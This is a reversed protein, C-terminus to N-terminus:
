FDLDINLSVIFNDESKEILKERMKLLEKNKNQAYLDRMQDTIFLEKYQGRYEDSLLFELSSHKINQYNLVVDDVMFPKYVVNARSEKENKILKTSVFGLCTEPIIVEKSQSLQYLVNACFRVSGFNSPKYQPAQFGINKNEIYILEHESGFLYNRFQQFAKARKSPSYVTFYNSYTTFWFWNKLEELQPETPSDIINFFETIFILQWNTPLLKSDIVYLNEFLFAVAKELSMLTKRAVKIFYNKDSNILKVVDVDFSLKGFSSQICNFILERNIEQFNYLKLKEYLSDIENKLSFKNTQTLANVIWDKSIQIGKKNVRWFIDVAEDVTADIVDVSSIEYESIIKSLEDARDLYLDIKNKDNIKELKERAFKRFDSTNILVYLPVQYDSPSKQNKRVSIFEEEELDYFIRFKDNWISENLQLRDKNFKEPNILCGFLTSLRQLGDLIFIPKPESSPNLVKYPGIYNNEKEIWIDSDEHIPKWFQISGIPYKNKISVFLEKIDDTTWLFDRQFNPVQFTGQEFEELYKRLSRIRTDIKLESM